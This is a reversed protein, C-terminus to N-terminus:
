IIMYTSGDGKTIIFNPKNMQLFVFAPEREHVLKTLVVYVELQCILLSHLTKIGLNAMYTALLACESSKYPTNVIKAL